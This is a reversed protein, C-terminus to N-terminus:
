RLLDMYPIGFVPIRNCLRYSMMQGRDDGIVSLMGGAEKREDKDTIVTPPRLPYVQLVWGLPLLLHRCWISGFLLDVGHVLEGGFRM